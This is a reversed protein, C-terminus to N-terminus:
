LCHQPNTFLTRMEKPLNIKDLHIDQYCIATKSILLGASIAGFVHWLSHKLWYPEDSIKFCYIAAFIFILSLSWMKNRTFFTNEKNKRIMFWFVILLLLLLMAPILSVIENSGSLFLIMWVMSIIIFLKRIKEHVPVTHLIVIIIAFIATFHDIFRSLQFSMKDSSGPIYNVIAMTSDPCTACKEIQDYNAHIASKDIKSDLTLDARCSHYSWSSFLGVFTFMIILSSGDSVDLKSKLMKYVTVSAPFLYALNSICLTYKSQNPTVNM